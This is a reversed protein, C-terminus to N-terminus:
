NQDMPSVTEKERITLLRYTLFFVIVLNWIALPVFNLDLNGFLYKTFSILSVLNFGIAAAMDTRRRTMAAWLLTLICALYVYREHMAPLFYICVTSTWAALTMYAYPSTYRRKIFLCAGFGLICLTMLIGLKSFLDYDGAMISYINPCSMTLYHYLGAQRAYITLTNGIGRGAIVAPLATGIFIVVAYLVNVISMRKAAFYYILLVPLFFVAQLKMALAIGFFIWTMRYREKFLFHLCLVLAATYISDCQGWYASDLFVVPSLLMVTFVALGKGSLMQKRGGCVLIAAAFAMVFDFVVSLMKIESLDNFPTRAIINLFLMYPVYYEGINQGIGSIGKYAKLQGIWISLYNQWDGTEHPFLPLRMLFALVAIAAFGILIVNKQILSIFDQETKTM